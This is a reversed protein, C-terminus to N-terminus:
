PASKDRGRRFDEDNEVRKIFQCNMCLVQFGQPYNNTRLWRYFHSGSRSIGLKRKHETGHGNIHDITLARLDTFGCRVCKLEPSYHQLVERKLREHQRVNYARYRTKVSEDQLRRQRNVKHKEAYKQRYSPQAMRRAYNFHAATRRKERYAPDLMNRHHRERMRACREEHTLM